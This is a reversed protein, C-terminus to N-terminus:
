GVGVKRPTNSLTEIMSLLDKATPRENVNQSTCSAIIGDLEDSIQSVIKQPHCVTLAVPNQGTLLFFVTGALSYIDSAPTAKGRFQEPSIFAQKGIITGTATGLFENAAGFDILHIKGDKLILNEPTIDRHVIPPTGSHLYALIEAMQKTWDLVTEESQHGNQAIYQRLNQGNIYEMLLYNRNNEVFHDHVKAVRDHTLAVLLRAEREFLEAAKSKLESDANLPMVAEKLILLERSDKQALYIASLGGFALQRIVELRGNMLSQGPELPVFVTSHFRQGLEQEWIETFSNGDSLLNESKLSRRLQKVEDCSKVGTACVEFSVLLKELDTQEFASTDLIVREGSNFIISIKGSDPSKSSTLYSIEAFESWRRHRRMKLPLLMFLPFCAGDKTISIRHDGTIATIAAVPLGIAAGMSLFTIASLMQSQVKFIPYYCVTILCVGLFLIMSVAIVPLIVSWVAFAARVAAPRYQIVCELENSM